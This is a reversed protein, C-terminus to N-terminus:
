EDSNNLNGANTHWSLRKRHDSYKILVQFLSWHSVLSVSNVDVFFDGVSGQTYPCRVPM